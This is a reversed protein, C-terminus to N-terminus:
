AFVTGGGLDWEVAAGQLDVQGAGGVGRAGAADVEAVQLVPGCDGGDGRGVGGGGDIFGEGAGRQGGDPEPLGAGGAPGDRDGSHQYGSM